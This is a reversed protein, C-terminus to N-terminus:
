CIVAKGADMEHESVALDSRGVGLGMDEVGNIPQEVPTAVTQSVLQASAGPYRTTVQM